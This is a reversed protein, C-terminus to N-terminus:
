KSLDYIELETGGRSFGKHKRLVALRGRDGPKPGSWATWAPPRKGALLGLVRRAEGTKPDVECLDLEDPDAKKRAVAEENVPDVTLSLLLRGGPLFQYRLSGPDYLTPRRPLKLEIRTDPKGDPAEAAQVLEVRQRAEDFHVFASEGPHKGRLQVLEALAVPDGIPQTGQLKGSLTDLYALRDPQRVDKKRDYDSGQKVVMTLYDSLFYQLAAGGQPTLVGAEGKQRYSRQGLPRLTGANLAQLRYEGRGLTSPPPQSFALIAPTRGVAGLRLESAPGIKQRTRDKEYVLGTEQTGEADKQVLLLREEPLVLLRAFGLAPELLPGLVADGGTDREASIERRHLEAFGAGDTVIYYLARGDGSFAFGDDIYGRAPRLTLGPVPKREEAAAAPLALAGLVLVLWTHIRCVARSPRDLSRMDWM